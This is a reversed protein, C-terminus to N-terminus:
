CSRNQGRATELNVNVTTFPYSFSVYINVVFDHQCMTRRSVLYLFLDFVHTQLQMPLGFLRNMFRKLRCGQGNDLPGLGVGKMARSATTCFDKVSSYSETIFSPVDYEFRQDGFIFDQLLDLAKLGYKPEISFSRMASSAGAARRDGPGGWLHADQMNFM